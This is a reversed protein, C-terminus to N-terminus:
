ASRLIDRMRAGNERYWKFLISVDTGISFNRVGLNLYYEADDPSNIEARPVVGMKLATEIMYTRAEIVEPDGRQGVKGISMGYDSPGFQVMDVGRVSLIAELNDIAGKKEIMLAVVVDELSQVWAPTAREVIVGVDRGHRAGARGGTEPTEARVARVCEEAESVSRVDAFLINQIGSSIARVALHQRSEQQIKIMGAMHDFLDIARGVNELSFLDYPGYEALIEVYDFMGSHGVLEYMTPWQTELRTGLSPEGANLLERLRNKRM